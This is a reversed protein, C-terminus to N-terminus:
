LTAMWKDLDAEARDKELAYRERLKGVLIDKKGEIVKLDDDTLKGWKTKLKGKVQEWNGTVQDWNMGFEKSAKIQPSEARGRARTNQLRQAMQRLIFDNPTRRPRPARPALTV